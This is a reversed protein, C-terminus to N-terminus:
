TTDKKNANTDKIDHDCLCLPQTNSNCLYSHLAGQVPEAEQTHGGTGLSTFKIIFVLKVVYMCFLFM